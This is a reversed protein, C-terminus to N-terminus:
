IILFNQYHLKSQDVHYNLDYSADLSIDHIITSSKLLEISIGVM